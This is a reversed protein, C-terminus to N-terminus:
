SRQVADVNGDRGGEDVGTCDVRRQRVGKCLQIARFYGLADLCSGM